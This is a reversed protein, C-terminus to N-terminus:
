FTFRLAFQILRPNNVQSNVVGFSANYSAANPNSCCSTNPPGFQPNNFINFFEARFQVGLRDEPGFRTDKVLSVDWNEIGQARLVPDVRSEDGYTWAPPASFASTNFWENLRNVASGSLAANGSIDPRQGNNEGIGTGSSLGFNLPFGRQYTTVGQLGWGSILKGGIGTANPLFRKGHGVPLDIVYSAVLRQPVDYSSLSREASRNNWDQIGGPGAAELWSTLSDVDGTTIMKSITYAVLLTGGGATRKELKAQLSNYISDSWGSAGISYGTYQPYPLLLQQLQVTPSTALGTSNNILGLFPNPVQDRLHNGLSLYQDPLADLQQSYDPLHTGKAAAYALDILTGGRLQRQVDLNWQQYYAMPNPLYGSAIGNGYALQQYDANRGPPPLIGNPFPNSLGLTPGIVGNVNCGTPTPTACPTNGGDVSTIWPTGINNIFDNNPSTQFEVANSIWFLGYGGRVVTSNNLQYAFGLRPSFQKWPKVTSYLAPNQATAVLGLDGTLSGLCIQSKGLAAATAAPLVSCPLAPLNTAVNPDLESLRNYRESYPGTQEWRLGYNLTLKSTAKFQDQIYLAPYLQQSAILAPNGQSGLSSGYGLLFSAVSSGGLQYNGAPNSSTFGNTFDFMGDPANTQAYNHTDQRFEGGFEITHRGKIKTLSGAIRATDERAFIVSGTGQSCFINNNNYQNTLCPIPLSAQFTENQYAGWAPGFQSLNIGATTPTRDYKFRNFTVRMDLITTPSLNYVDDAVADNTNFTETCRDVCVGTGFPDIPLNLNTWYSYRVFMRQKDSINQDVRMVFQDNDGGGSTNGGWNNVVSQNTEGPINPMPFEKNLMVLATTNLRATPIVNGPFQQRAPAQGGVLATNTTTPDYIPNTADAGQSFDGAREAVTPVTTAFASGVRERFGEYSAFWFTKNRGDYIHPLYLPGGANLGFQNQVFPARKVGNENDFFNNSNLATNRLYEYAAGHLENTGSKTTFNIVGGAFRGWEADLNNTQVKFEQISDQTPILSLLNAYSNNLPVGDLYESGQNTIAGGIQYNGWAFPNAGTVTGQSQGQPVVSPALATLNMANRGNLPLENTLRTGIVQGLSSTEAQLLPTQSTVQIMQSVQGLEMKVDIRATQQVEVVVPSRTFSKFGEKDVKISYNGPTLNVFQYLGDGSTALVRTEATGLSKLTVQAGPIVAGSADTVLGTISGFTTQGWVAPIAGFVFVLLCALIVGKKCYM